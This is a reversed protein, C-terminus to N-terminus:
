FKAKSAMSIAAYSSDEYSVRRQRPAEAHAESELAAEDYLPSDNAANAAPAAGYSESAASENASSPRILRRFFGTVGGGGGSNNSSNTAAPAAAVSVSSPAPTTDYRQRTPAPTTDDRQRSSMAESKSRVNIM